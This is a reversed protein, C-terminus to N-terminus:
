QEALWLVGALSLWSVGFTNFARWAPGTIYGDTVSQLRFSENTTGSDAARVIHVNPITSPRFGVPCDFIATNGSGNYGVLGRGIVLGNSLRRISTGNGYTSSSYDSHGGLYPIDVGLRLWGSDAWGGGSAGRELAEIRRQYEQLLREFNGDPDRLVKTV